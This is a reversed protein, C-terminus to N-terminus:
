FCVVCFYLRYVTYLFRLLIRHSLEFLDVSTISKKFKSLSGLLLAGCCFLSVSTSFRRNCGVRRRYPAVKPSSRIPIEGLDKSTQAVDCACCLHPRNRCIACTAHDTQTDTQRNSVSTLGICFRSFRDLHPKPHPNPPPPPSAHVLLYLCKFLLASIVM